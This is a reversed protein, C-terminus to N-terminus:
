MFNQRNKEKEKKLNLKKHACFWNNFDKTTKIKATRELRARQNTLRPQVSQEIYLYIQKITKHTPKSWISIWLAFNGLRIRVAFRLIRVQSPKTKARNTRVAVCVYVSVCVCLYVPKRQKTSDWHNHNPHEINMHDPIQYRWNSKIVRNTACIWM